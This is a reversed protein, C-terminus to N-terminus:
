RTTAGSQLFWSECRSSSAQKSTERKHWRFAQQGSGPEHEELVSSAFLLARCKRCRYWIAPSPPVDSTAAPPLSPPLSPPPPNMSQLGCSCDSMAEYCRWCTTLDRGAASGSELHKCGADSRAAPPSTRSKGNVVKPLPEVDAAAKAESPKSGRGRAGGGARVKEDSSLVQLWRGSREGGKGGGAGECGAPAGGEETGETSGDSWSGREEKSSTGNRASVGYSQAEAAREASMRVEPFLDRCTAFSAAVKHGEGALHACALWAPGLTGAGSMPGALLLVGRRCALAFRIFGCAESLLAHSEGQAVAEAAASILALSAGIRKCAASAKLIQEDEPPTTSSASPSTSSPPNPSSLPTPSSLLLVHSIGLGRLLEEQALVSPEGLFLDTALKRPVSSPEMPPASSSSPSPSPLPQSIRRLLLQTHVDCPELLARLTPDVSRSGAEVRSLLQTLSCWELSSSTGEPAPPPEARRSPVLFLTRGAARLEVVGKGRRLKVLLQNESSAGGPDLLSGTAESLQKAALPLKQEESPSPVFDHACLTAGCRQLLLEAGRESRTYALASVHAMSHLAGQV